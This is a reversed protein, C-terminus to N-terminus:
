HDGILGRLEAGFWSIFKGAEPTIGTTEPAIFQFVRECPIRMEFPEILAGDGIADAVYVERLLAFGRGAIAAQLILDANSYTIRPRVFQQEQLFTGFFTAWHVTEDEHILNAQNFIERENSAFASLNAWYDPACVLRMMESPVPVMPHHTESNQETSPRPLLRVAVDIREEELNLYRNSACIRVNLETYQELFSALRPQLVLSALSPTIGISLTKQHAQSGVLYGIRELQHTVIRIEPIIARLFETPEVNRGAARFLRVGWKDELKKIHYSITPQSLHLEDAAASVSRLRSVAELSRAEQLTPIFKSAVKM